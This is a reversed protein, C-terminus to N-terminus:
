HKLLGVLAAFKDRGMLIKPGDPNKSDRVAIIGPASALEVCKPRSTTQSSTVLAHRCPSPGITTRTNRSSRSPRGTTSTHVGSVLARDDPRLVVGGDGAPPQHEERFQRM